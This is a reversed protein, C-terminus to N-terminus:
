KYAHVQVCPASGPMHVHVRQTPDRNTRCICVCQAGGRQYTCMHAGVVGRETPAAKHKFRIIVHWHDGVANYALQHPRTTSTTHHPHNTVPSATSIWNIKNMGRYKYEGILLQAVCFAVRTGTVRTSIQRRPWRMVVDKHRREARM